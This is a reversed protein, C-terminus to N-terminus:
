TKMIHQADYDFLDYAWLTLGELEDMGVDRDLFDAAALIHAELGPHPTHPVGEVFDWGYKWFLKQEDTEPEMELIRNNTTNFGMTRFHMHHATGNLNLLLEINMSDCIYGLIELSNLNADVLFHPSPSHKGTIGDDYVFPYGAESYVNLQNNWFLIRRVAGVHNSDVGSPETFVYRMPDPIFMFIRKPPGYHKIHHVVSKVMTTISAGPRAVNNVSLGSVYRIISPWTYEHPLGVGATVSCGVALIDPERVYEEGHMGDSNVRYYCNTLFGNHNQPLMGRHWEPGYSYYVPLTSTSEYLM